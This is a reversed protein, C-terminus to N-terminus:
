KHYVELYNNIYKNITYNELIFKKNEKLKASNGTAKQAEELKSFLSKHNNSKFFMIKGKTVEKLVPLNSSIVPYCSYMAELLTIGFGEALSPFVFLDCNLYLNLKDRESVETLFKVNAVLNLDRVKKKLIEYDSGKGALILITKPYKKLFEFLTNILLIQNKEKTLRSLFLINFNTKDFISKIFKQDVELPKYNDVEEIFLSDLANPIIKLKYPLIGEKIKREKITQTLAIEYTSLLNVIFSNLFINLIKALFSVQWMSIPTHTHSIKIKVSTGVAALLSNFVVKPENAHIIEIQNKSIVERLFKIYELDLKKVPRFKYVHAFEKFQKFYDGEPCVVFKEVGPLGKVLDLVTKEMGGFNSSNLTFLVKM